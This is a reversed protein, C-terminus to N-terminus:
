GEEEHSRTHSFQSEVQFRERGAKMAPAKLGSMDAECSPDPAAAGAGHEQEVAGSM